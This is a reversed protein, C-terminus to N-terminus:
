RPEAALLRTFVLTGAPALVALVLPVVLFSSRDQIQALLVLVGIAVASVLQMGARRGIAGGRSALYLGPGLGATLLVAACIELGSM